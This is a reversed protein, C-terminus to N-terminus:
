DPNVQLVASNAWEALRSAIDPQSAKTLMDDKEAGPPLRSANARAESAFKVLQAQLSETQKFRRRKQM